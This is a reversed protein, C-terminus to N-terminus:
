DMTGYLWGRLWLSAGKGKSLSIFLCRISYFAHIYLAIPVQIQGAWLLWSASGGTLPMLCTLFLWPIRGLDRFHGSYGAEMFVVQGCGFQDFYSIELILPIIAPMWFVCRM